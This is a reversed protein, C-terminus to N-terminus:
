IVAAHFLGGTHFNFVVTQPQHAITSARNARTQRRTAQADIEGSKLFRNIVAV